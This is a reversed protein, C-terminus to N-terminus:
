FLEMRKALIDAYKSMAVHQDWLLGCAKSGDDNEKLWKLMRAIKANLERYEERVREQWALVEEVEEELEEHDDDAADGDEELEDAFDDDSDLEAEVHVTVDAVEFEMGGDVIDASSESNVAEGSLETNASDKEELIVDESM